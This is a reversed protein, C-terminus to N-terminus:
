FSDAVKGGEKEEVGVKMLVGKMQRKISCRMKMYYLCSNVSPWCKQKNFCFNKNFIPQCPMLFQLAEKCLLHFHLFHATGYYVVWKPM